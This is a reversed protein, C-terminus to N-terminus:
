PNLHEEIAQRITAPDTQCEAALEDVLADVDVLALTIGYGEALEDLRRATPNDRGAEVGLLTTHARGLREALARVSDGSRARARTLALAADGAITM